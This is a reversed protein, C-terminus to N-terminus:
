RATPLAEIVCHSGSIPLLRALRFGSAALLDALGLKAAVAIAQSVRYGAILHELREQLRREHQQLTAAPDENPSLAPPGGAIDV